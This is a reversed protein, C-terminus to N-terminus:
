VLCKTLVIDIALTKLSSTLSMEVQEQTSVLTLVVKVLHRYFIEDQLIQIEMMVVYSDIMQMLM